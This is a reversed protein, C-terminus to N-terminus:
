YCVGVEGLLMYGGTVVGVNTLMQWCGGVYVSMCRCVGVYVSMCRCVGVDVSMWRCGSVNVSKCPYGGVGVSVWRGVSVWWCRVDVQKKVLM